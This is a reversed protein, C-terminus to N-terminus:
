VDSKEKGSLGDGVSKWVPVVNGGLSLMREVLVWEMTGM